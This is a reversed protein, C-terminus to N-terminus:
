FGKQYDQDFNQLEDILQNVEKDHRLQKKYQGSLGDEFLNAPQASVKAANSAPMIPLSAPARQSQDLKKQKAVFNQSEKKGKKSQARQELSGYVNVPVGSPKGYDNSPKWVKKPKSRRAEHLKEQILQQPSFDRVAAPSEKKLYILDGSQPSRVASPEAASSSPDVPATAVLTGKEAPAMSPAVVQPGSPEDSAPKRTSSNKDLQSAFVEEPAMGVPSKVVPNPERLPDIGVFVKTLNKFSDFGVPTANRPIGNDVDKQLFSFHGEPVPVVVDEVLQNSLDFQGRITLVQTKGKEQSFSVIGEAAGYVVKSNATQLLTVGGEGKTQIWLLGEKLDVLRRMIQVQGGSALHYIHGYYDTFSVQSSDETVISTMDLVLDGAKLNKANGNVLSFVEGRVEKVIAVPTGTQARAIAFSCLFASLSLVYIWHTIEGVPSKKAAIVLSSSKTNKYYKKM